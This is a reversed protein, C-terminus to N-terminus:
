FFIKGHFHSTVQVIPPRQRCYINGINYLDGRIALIPNLRVANSGRHYIQINQAVLEQAEIKGNGEYIAISLQNTKGTIFFNAFTNNTLNLNQNEINMIFDGTGSGPLGDFNDVAILNLAPYTLKGQSSIKGETKSYIEILNPTTVTVVTEGYDRVWNCTTKDKLTLQGDAVSVEIDDILNQGASVSVNYDPGQKVILNIGTFVIIKDFVLNSYNKTTLLGSSKICDAPKSCGFFLLSFFFIKLFNNM